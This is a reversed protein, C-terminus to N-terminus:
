TPGEIANRGRGGTLSAIMAVSVVRRANRRVTAATIGISASTVGDGGSQAVPAVQPSAGDTPTGPSGDTGNPTASTM